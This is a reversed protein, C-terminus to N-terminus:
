VAHAIREGHDSLRRCLVRGVPWSVPRLRQVVRGSAGASQIRYPSRRLRSTWRGSQSLVLSRSLWTCASTRGQRQRAPDREAM